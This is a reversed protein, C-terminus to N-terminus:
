SDAVSWRSSKIRYIEDKLAQIEGWRRQIRVFEEYVKRAEEASSVPIPLGSIDGTKLVPITTGTVHEAFYSQVLTSSLYMYLYEPTFTQVQRNLRIIQFSQSAVWNDGCNAVIGVKGVSGKTVLLIDGPYLRQKEARANMEGYLTISKEPKRIAGDEGIDRVGVELFEKAYLAESKDEKLQQGRILTAIEDLRSTNEELRLVESARGFVYKSVSLEYANDAIEIHSAIRIATNEEDSKGLAIDALLQTSKLVAPIGRGRTESFIESTGDIFTTDKNGRNSNKNILLVSLALNTGRLLPTPLQIVAELLGNTVIDRRFENSEGGRFLVGQPVVVVLRGTCRRIANEILRVESNIKKRSSELAAGFPPILLIRSYQQNSEELPEDGFLYEPKNRAEWNEDEFDGLLSAAETFSEYFAHSYVVKFGKAACHISVQLSSDFPAYVVGEEPDLLKVLFDLFESEFIHAGSKRRSSNKLILCNKLLEFRDLERLETVTECVSRIDDPSLFKWVKSSYFAHYGHGLNEDIKYFADELTLRGRIVDNFTPLGKAQDKKLLHQWAFFLLLEEIPSDVRLGNFKDVLSWFASSKAIM